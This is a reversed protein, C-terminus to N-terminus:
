AMRTLETVGILAFRRQLKAVMEVPAVREGRVLEAAVELLDAIPPAGSYPTM